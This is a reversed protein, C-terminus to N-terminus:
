APQELLGFQLVSVVKTILGIGTAPVTEALWVIQEPVDGALIVKVPLVPEIWHCDDGSLAVHLLIEPAVAVGSVLAWIPVCVATLYKLATKVVTQPVSLEATTVTFTFGTETAPDIVGAEVFTHVPVLEVKNVKVPLVPVAWHCDDGSLAVQVFTPVGPVVYVAVFRTAM